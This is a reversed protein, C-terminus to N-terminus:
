PQEKENIWRWAAGVASALPVLVWFLIPGGIMLILGLVAMAVLFPTDEDGGFRARVVATRFVVFVVLGALLSALGTLFWALLKV